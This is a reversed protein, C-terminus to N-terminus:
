STSQIRPTPNPQACAKMYRCSIISTCPHYSPHITSLRRIIHGKLLTRTSAFAVSIGSSMTGVGSIDQEKCMTQTKSTTVHHSVMFQYEM